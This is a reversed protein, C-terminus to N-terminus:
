LWRMPAPSTEEEVGSKVAGYNEADSRVSDPISAQVYVCTLEADNVYVTMEMKGHSVAVIYDQAWPSGDSYTGSIAGKRYSYSGSFRSFHGGGLKQFLEFQGKHFSLYVQAPVTASEAAKGYYSELKWEGEISDKKGEPNCSILGLLLILVTFIKINRM